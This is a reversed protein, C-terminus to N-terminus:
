DNEEKKQKRFLRKFFDIPSTFFRRCVFIFGIFGGLLIQFILSGSGPDIYSLIYTM